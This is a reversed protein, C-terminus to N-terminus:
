RSDVTGLKDIKGVRLVPAIQFPHRTVFGERDEFSRTEGNTAKCSKAKWSKKIGQLAWSLMTVKKCTQDPGPLLFPVSLQCLSLRIALEQRLFDDCCHFLAVLADMPNVGGDDAISDDENSDSYSGESYSDDEEDDNDEEVNDGVKANNGDLKCMFSRAKYNGTMLKQMIYKPIQKPSQLDEVTLDATLFDTMTVKKEPDLGLQNLLSIFNSKREDVHPTPREKEGNSKSNTETDVMPDDKQRSGTSEGSSSMIAEDVLPFPAM